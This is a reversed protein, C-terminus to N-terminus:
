KKIEKIEDDPKKRRIKNILNLKRGKKRMVIYVIALASIVAVVIIIVPILFATESELSFELIVEEDENMVKYSSVIGEENYTTEILIKNGRHIQSDYWSFRDSGFREYLLKDEDVYWWKYLELHDLYKVIDTPVWPILITEFYLDTGHDGPILFWSFEEEESDVDGFKEDNSWTWIEYEVKYADETLYTEPSYMTYDDDIETIELKMKKGEEIGEFITNDDYHNGWAEKMKLEDFTKCVYIYEDGEDFGVEYDDEDEDKAITNTTLGIFVTAFLLFSIFILKKKM